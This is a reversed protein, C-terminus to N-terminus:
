NKDDVALEKQKWLRAINERHAFIVLIDLTLVFWLDLRGGGLILTNLLVLAVLSAASKTKTLFTIMLLVGVTILVFWPHFAFLVGGSTAVGKGGRFKLFIPFIHGVVVAIGVLYVWFISEESFSSHAGGLLPTPPYITFIYYAISTPLFGKLFDLFAVFAAWRFGLVRGVNTAGTSGSGVQRLDVKKLWKALIQGTPISGFLYALLILGLILWIM